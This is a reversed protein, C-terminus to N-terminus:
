LSPSIRKEVTISTPPPPPPPPSPAPFLSAMTRDATSSMSSRSGSSNLMISMSARMTSLFGYTTHASCSDIRMFPM